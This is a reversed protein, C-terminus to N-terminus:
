YSFITNRYASRANQLSESLMEGTQFEVEGDPTDSCCLYTEPFCVKNNGILVFTERKRVEVYHENECVPCVIKVKGLYEYNKNETM